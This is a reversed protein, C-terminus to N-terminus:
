ASWSRLPQLYGVVGDEAALSASHVAGNDRPLASRKAMEVKLEKFCRAIIDGENRGRGEAIWCERCLHRTLAKRMKPVPTFRSSTRSVNPWDCQLPFVLRGAVVHDLAAKRSSAVALPQEEKSTSGQSESGAWGRALLKYSRCASPSAWASSAESQSGLQEMLAVSVVCTNDKSTYWQTGQQKGRGRRHAQEHSVRRTELSRMVKHVGYSKNM